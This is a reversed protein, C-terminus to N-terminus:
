VPLSYVLMFHAERDEQPLEMWTDYDISFNSYANDLKYPGEDYVAKAANKYLRLVRGKLSQLAVSLTVDKHRVDQAVDDIESKSM